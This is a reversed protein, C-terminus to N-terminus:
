SELSDVLPKLERALPVNDIRVPLYSSAEYDEM